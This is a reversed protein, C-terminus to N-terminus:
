GGLPPAEGPQPVVTVPQQIGLSFIVENSRLEQTVYVGQDPFIPTATAAPSINLTGRFSNRYTAQISYRGPALGMNNLRIGDFALQETCRQKPGLIYLVEAPFSTRQPNPPRTTTPEPFTALDSLRQVQFNLGPTGDDRLLAERPALFLTIAGVGENIFTANVVLAEGMAMSDRQLDIQLQLAGESRAALLSQNNGNAAPHALASCSVGFRGGPIVRPLVIMLMIAFAVFVIGLTTNSTDSVLSRVRQM